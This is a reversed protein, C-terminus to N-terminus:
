YATFHADLPGEDMLWFPDSARGNLRADLALAHEVECHDLQISWAGSRANEGRAEARTVGHLVVPAHEGVPSRLDESYDALVGVRERRPSFIVYFRQRAQERGLKSHVFPVDDKRTRSNNTYGERHV